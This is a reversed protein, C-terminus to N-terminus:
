ISNFCYQTRWVCLLQFIYIVFYNSMDSSICIIEYYQFPDVVFTNFKFHFYIGIHGSKQRWTHPFYLLICATCPVYTESKYIIYYSLNTKFVWQCVCKLSKMVKKCKCNKIFHSLYWLSILRSVCTPIVLWLFIHALMSGQYVPPPILHGHPTFMEQRGTVVSYWENCSAINLFTTSMIYRGTVMTKIKTHIVGLRKIRFLWQQRARSCYEMTEYQQNKLIINHPVCISFIFIDNSTPWIATLIKYNEM